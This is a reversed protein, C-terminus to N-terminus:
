FIWPKVSIRCIMKINKYETEFLSDQSLQENHFRLYMVITEIIMM